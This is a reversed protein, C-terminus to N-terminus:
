GIEYSRIRVNIIAHALKKNDEDWLKSAL